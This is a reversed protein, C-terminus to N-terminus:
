KQHKKEWANLGSLFDNKGIDLIAAGPTRYGLELAYQMQRDYTNTPLNISNAKQVVSTLEKLDSNSKTISALETRGGTLKYAHLQTKANNIITSSIKAITHAEKNKVTKNRVGRLTNFLISNLETLNNENSQEETKM